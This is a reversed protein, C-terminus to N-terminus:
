FQNIIEIVATKFIPLERTVITWVIDSNSNTKGRAVSGFVRVNYAGRVNALNLIEERKDQLLKQMSM